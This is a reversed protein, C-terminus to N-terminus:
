TGSFECLPLAEPINKMKAFKPNEIKTLGAMSSAPFVFFQLNLPAHCEEPLQLM